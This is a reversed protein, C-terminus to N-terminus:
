WLPLCLLLTGVGGLGFIQSVVVPAFSVGFGGVTTAAGGIACGKGAPSPPPVVSSDPWPVDIGGPGMFNPYANGNADVGYSTVGAQPPLWQGGTQKCEGPSSNQDVGGPEVATGADNLYVCPDSALGAIYQGMAQAGSNQYGPLDYLLDGFLSSSPANPNCSPDLLDCGQM